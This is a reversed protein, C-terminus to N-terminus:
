LTRFILSEMDLRTQREADAARYYLDGEPTLRAAGAHIRVRHLTVDDYIQRWETHALKWDHMAKVIDPSISPMAVLPVSSAVPVAALGVARVLFNRRGALILESM